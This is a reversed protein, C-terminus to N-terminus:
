KFEKFVETYKMLTTESLGPATNIELAYYTDSRKNYIVDVAGFDLGTNKVCSIAMELAKEQIEINQNAFIFGNELNRIKWNIEEEPIEKNRGKRQVFFAKDRFVHIRYEDTKPIYKTYLPADILQEPNSIISIGEGGKGEVVERIVVSILGGKFWKEAEERKTTFPVSYEKNVEFFSIKNVAKKVADPHNLIQCKMIEPPMYLPSCGWNIVVKDPNGKFRSNKHKIGRIKLSEKLFRYSESNPNYSFIYM